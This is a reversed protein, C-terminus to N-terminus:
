IEVLIKNITVNSNWYADVVEFNDFEMVPDITESMNQVAGSSM